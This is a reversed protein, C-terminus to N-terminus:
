RNIKLIMLGNCCNDKGRCRRIDGRKGDWGETYGCDKNHCVYKAGYTECAAYFLEAYQSPLMMDSAKESMAVM